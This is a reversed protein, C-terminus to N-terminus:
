ACSSARAACSSAASASRSSAAAARSRQRLYRRPAIEPHEFAMAQARTACRPASTRGLGAGAARAPRRARQRPRLRRRQAQRDRRAVGPRAARLRALADVVGDLDHVDECGLPHPVGAERSCGGAAPRPARAPAAASRRRLAPHRAGARPRARADHDHVPVLHCRARDPILARIQALIRPRELLKTPWRARRATTPRRGPAPARPRPAPHRGAAARPLVRHHERPDAARHRLHGAPAAPAAAAPPVPLAGRLGAARRRQGRAPRARGVPRRRDVRRARQAADRELGPGAAGAATRLARRAGARQAREAAADATPSRSM